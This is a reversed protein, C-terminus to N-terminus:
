EKRTVVPNSWLVRDAEVSKLGADINVRDQTNFFKNTSVRVQTRSLYLAFRSNFSAFEVCVCVSLNWRRRIFEGGNVNAGLTKFSVSSFMDAFRNLLQLV